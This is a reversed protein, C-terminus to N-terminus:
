HPMLASAVQNDRCSGLIDEVRTSEALMVRAEGVLVDGVYYAKEHRVGFASAGLQAFHGQSGGCMHNLSIVGGM